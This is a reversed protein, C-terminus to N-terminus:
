GNSKVVAMHQDTQTPSGDPPYSFTVIFDRWQQSLEHFPHNDLTLWAHGDLGSPAQRVGCHFRVPYGMPRALRYLAVSRPFCNGKANYPFLMLWRDVYYILDEMAAEDTTHTLAKPELMGLVEPLKLFRLLVRVWLVLLGTRFVTRYKRVLRSM